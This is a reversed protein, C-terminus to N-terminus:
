WAARAARVAKFLQRRHTCRGVNFRIRGSRCLTPSPILLPVSDVSNYDLILGQVVPPQSNGLHRLTHPRDQKIGEWDSTMGVATSSGRKM